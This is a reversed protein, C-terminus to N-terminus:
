AVQADSEFKERLREYTKREWAAHRERQAARWQEREALDDETPAEEWVATGFNLDVTWPDVHPYHEALYDVFERLSIREKMRLYCRMWSDDAETKWSRCIGEIAM